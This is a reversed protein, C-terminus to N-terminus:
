AADGTDAHFTQAIRAVTAPGLAKALEFDGHRKLTPSPAYDQLIGDASDVFRQRTSPALHEWPVIAIGYYQARVYYLAQGLSCASAARAFQSPAM